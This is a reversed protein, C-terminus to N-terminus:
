IDDKKRREKLRKEKEKIELRKEVNSKKRKPHQTLYKDRKLAKDLKM